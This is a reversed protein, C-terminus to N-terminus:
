QSICNEVIYKIEEKSIAAGRIKLAWLAAALVRKESDQLSTVSYKKLLGLDFAAVILEILRLVQIDGTKKLFTQKNKDNKDVTTHLKNSLINQLRIDDELYLRATREDIIVADACIMSAAAITEIEGTQLIQLNKKGVRFSHNALSLLSDTFGTMNKLDIEELVGSVILDNVQMAELEFRHSKLPHDIIEKRVNPTIFFNGGYKKKLEPLVWLLNNTALSIIPGADFVIGNRM